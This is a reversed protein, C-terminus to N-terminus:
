AAACGPPSDEVAVVEDPALMLRGLAEVYCAPDPKIAGVDSGAVVVEFAGPALQALLPAVWRRSGTTAVALRVGASSLDALLESVGPRLPLSGEAIMADLHATKLTHLQAALADAAPAGQARLYHSLRPVGGPIALLDRYTGRDWHYGLELEEFARNFSVRHGEQESDVLTGDVDFVVARLAM